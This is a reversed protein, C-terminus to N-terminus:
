RVEELVAIAGKVLMGDAEPAFPAVGAEYGGQDFAEARCFYGPYGNAYSIVILNPMNVAARIEEQTEVFVEGPLALVYLDQGLRFAQVDDERTAGRGAIRGLAVREMQARTLKAAATRRTETDPAAAVEAEFAAIRAAMEADDPGIRYPLTLTRIAARLPAEPVLQGSTTPTPTLENWRINHARHGPGHTRMEQSLAAAKMGVISGLRYVEDFEQRMWAPNINGCCGNFFLATSGPINREITRCAEGPYDASIDLNDREMTTPHCSYRAVTAINTGGATDAALVDLRHDIPWDPHRRNQSISELPVTGYKLQGEQANRKALMVSGAIKRATLELLVPDSTGRVGVPGAHTHTASIMVNASPIGPRAAILDIAMTRLEHGIGILDCVVLVIEVVGDSVYLARAYLPDHVGIGVDTRGGYGDLATGVPSTIDIASAGVKLMGGVIGVSGGVRWPRGTRGARHRNFRGGAGSPTPQPGSAAWGVM